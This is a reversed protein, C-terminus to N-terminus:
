RVEKFLEDLTVTGSLLADSYQNQKVGNASILAIFLQKDTRTVRKFVDLKQELKKAYEKTIVFPKETYKIECITIADDDRDFLLDIQAGQEESNKRPVYRWATPIATVSLKLAKTIQPLHEYCASEFALGAWNHWAPRSKLKDWYGQLLSNKLLSDKVPEIWHLYFLSYEDIVRYYIGRKKHFHPKFSMIFNADQLAKLKQLGGKGRLKDGLAKLLAEQGVGYRSSAIKRVIDIFLDANDFLSSYLNDFEELLFSKQKFAINEIIQTASLNKEIKKLYFPVGGMVMFLQLIQKDNLKVSLSRLFDRTEGLNFPELHINRTLRNHLGGKNNVINDIIWSASSGCIILKVRNDKSWYQNWYYDLNQLLRSNKTAMWPFEDLFLVIKKDEKIDEIAETLLEFTEDWNKGLALRARRHSYFIKGLQKTFREIQEKMPSGNAGAADFFIIDDRAECFARILFTKGVRRRGYIALFEAEESTLFAELTNLEVERGIIDPM